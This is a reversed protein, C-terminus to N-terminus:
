VSAERVAHEKAKISVIHGIFLGIFYSATMIIMNASGNFANSSISSNTTYIRSLNSFFIILILPTIINISQKFGKFGNDYKGGILMGITIVSSLFLLYYPAQWVVQFSILIDNM